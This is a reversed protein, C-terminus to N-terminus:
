AVKRLPRKRQALVLFFHAQFIGKSSQMFNLDFIRPWSAKKIADVFDRANIKDGLGHM